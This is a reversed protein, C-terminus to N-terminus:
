SQDVVEVEIQHHLALVRHLTRALHHLFQDVLLDRAQAVRELDRRLRVEDGAQEAFARDRAFDAHERGHLVAEVARRGLQQM